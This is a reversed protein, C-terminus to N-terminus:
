RRGASCPYNTVTDSFPEQFEFSGATARGYSAGAALMGLAATLLACLLIGRAVNSRSHRRPETMTRVKETPAFRGHWLSNRDACEPDDVAKAVLAEGDLSWRYEGTRM